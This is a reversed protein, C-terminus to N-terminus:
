QWGIMEKVVVVVVMELWCENMSKSSSSGGGSINGDVDGSGVGCVMTTSGGDGAGVLQAGDFQLLSLSSAAKCRECRRQLM